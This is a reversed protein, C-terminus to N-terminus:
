IKISRVKVSVAIGYMDLKQTKEKRKIDSLYKEKIKKLSYNKSAMIKTGWPVHGGPLMTAQVSYQLVLIYCCLTCNSSGM